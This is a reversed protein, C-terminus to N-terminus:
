RAWIATRSCMKLDAVAASGGVSGDRDARCTVLVLRESGMLTVTGLGAFHTLFGGLM